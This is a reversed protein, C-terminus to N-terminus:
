ECKRLTLRQNAQARDRAGVKSITIEIRSVINAMLGIDECFRVWKVECGDRTIELVYSIVTQEKKV